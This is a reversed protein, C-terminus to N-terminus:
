GTSQLTQATACVAGDGETSSLASDRRAVITAGLLSSLSQRAPTMAMKPVQSTKAHM